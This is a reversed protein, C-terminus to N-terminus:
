KLMKERAELAQVLRELHRELIPTPLAVNIREFGNGEKGFIYGEDTFFQCETHLFDELAQNSMGLATFDLWLLYTGESIPAVIKPYRETLFDHVLVKNRHILTNVQDLWAEAEQYAIRTAEFGLIGVSTQRSKELATLFTKRISADPIIIASTHMGALNFTKSASTCVIVRKALDEDLTALVTHTQGPEVLDYWIEDSVVILDHKKAIEGVKQLEERTWVRGVPNHPSCFILLKNEPKAAAKEFAAFDITYHGDGRVLPVNVERRNNNKIAMGFPYYVPRFLIVGDNEQTFANVATYLAAVVGPTSVIWNPEITWRHRKAQWEVVADLYAQTPGAYGLVPDKQLYNMLGAYIEPANKLEMDAVSLPRVDQGPEPHWRYMQAWKSSGSHKRDPATNFDYTM